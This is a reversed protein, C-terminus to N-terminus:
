TAPFEHDPQAFQPCSPQHFRIRDITQGLRQKRGSEAKADSQAEKEPGSTASRTVGEASESLDGLRDARSHREM